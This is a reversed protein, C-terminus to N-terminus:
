TVAGRVYDIMLQLQSEQERSVGRVLDGFSIVAVVHDGEMVPLHTCRRATMVAMAEGSATDMRVCALDRTMAERVGMRHPDRGALIVRSMIDGESLIGMPWGDMGVIVAGVHASCMTRVADIVTAEPAVAHVVTAKDKLLEAVTQM